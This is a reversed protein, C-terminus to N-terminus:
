VPCDCTKTKANFYRCQECYEVLSNRIRLCSEDKHVKGLETKIIKINKSM